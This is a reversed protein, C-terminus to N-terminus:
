RGAKRIRNYAAIPTEAGSVFQVAAAGVREAIRSDGLQLNTHRALRFADLEPFERRIAEKQRPRNLEDWPRGIFHRFISPAVYPNLIEVGESRCVSRIAKGGGADPDAFYSVRFADFAAQPYRHHIMAKKSLGFHGDACLGTLLFQHGNRAAVNALFAFPFACEVRAKKTLRYDLILSRTAAYIAQPDAPLDVPVFPFGFARALRRAQEFDSSPADPFAFSYIM